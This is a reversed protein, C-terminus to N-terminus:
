FAYSVLSYTSHISSINTLFSILVLLILPFFLLGKAPTPESPIKESGGDEDDLDIAKVAIRYSACAYLDQVVVNTGNTVQDIKQPIGYIESTASLKYHKICTGGSEPM